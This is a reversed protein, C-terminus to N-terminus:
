QELEETWNLVVTIRQSEPVVRMLVREGDATVDYYARRNLGGTGGGFIRTEFLVEPSGIEFLSDDEVAVAVAM